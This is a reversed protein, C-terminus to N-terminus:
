LSEVGASRVGEVLRAEPLNDTPVIAHDLGADRAALVAPLVGRVPRVRGDLALEGVLLVGDFLAGPLEGSATLTGVALPLDFGAGHKPLSAPSLSLVVKGAPWTLGSNVVAARMRDRSQLVAADPMGVISVGPLGRGVDAEIEVLQGGVGSLAVAWTRGLAVTLVGGRVARAPSPRSRGPGRRGRRLVGSAMGVSAGVAVAGRPQATASTQGRDGVGRAHTVTRAHAHPGARVAAPGAHGRGGPGTCRVTMALQSGGRPTWAGRSAGGRAGRGGGGDGAPPGGAQRATRDGDDRAGGG